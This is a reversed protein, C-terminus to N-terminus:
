GKGVEAEAVEGLLPELLLLLVEEAPTVVLAAV